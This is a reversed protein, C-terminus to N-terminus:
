MSHPIHIYRYECLTNFLIRIKTIVEDTFNNKLSILLKTFYISDYLIM